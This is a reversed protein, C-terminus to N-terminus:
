RLPLLWPVLVISVVLVLLTFPVGIKVFDVFRYKGPAMVLTNVPSSVPTMFAASAALAVTMVFPYPSADLHKAVSLAVPAMLIATATNSIFLGTVSTVVFLSALLVHPSAEGVLRLLGAVALDIGGTRELALAFPMMGVILVLIQWHISRYASEMDVCRTLGMVLCAILAAIVNPVLGTVMLFVMLALSLLAFPAQRLAPAVQDLEAPLNLILFDRGQTQLQRIAKWPGIVLLTDGMKLPEELISGEHAKGARRLGIVNPGYRTRFGLETVSRGILSSDPPLLIEAMGVERSQDTFYDGRLPLPDLGLSQYITAQDTEPDLQVDVLLVDGAQIETAAEPHLVESRFRGKREIGIVKARYQRRPQLERLTRGVVPSDARVRLRRERGALKYDRIFDV